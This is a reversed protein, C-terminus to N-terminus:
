SLFHLAAGITILIQGLHYSVLVRLRCHRLPSVFRNWALFTDSIFFLIAGASILYATTISWDTRVLTLLASLLMLSIAISYILVPLKLANQGSAKLGAAIRRYLGIFTMTVLTGLILSALNLPPPEQNLGILYSIHAFLFSVLGLIFQERPLMLFIDGALSFALGIAFWILPVNLGNNQWLWAILAAIVSPRSLYEVKRWEKAVAIWNLFALFLAICLFFFSM